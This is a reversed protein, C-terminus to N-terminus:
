FDGRLASIITIGNARLEAVTVIVSFTGGCLIFAQATIWLM